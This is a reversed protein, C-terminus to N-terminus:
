TDESEYASLLESYGEDDGEVAASERKKPEREASVKRQRGESSIKRSRGETSVKRTRAFVEGERGEGASVKRRRSRPSPPMAPPAGVTEDFTQARPTTAVTGTESEGEDLAPVDLSSGVAPQGPLPPVPGPNSRSNRMSQLRPPFRKRRLNARASPETASSDSAEGERQTRSLTATRRALLKGEHAPLAAYTPESENLVVSGRQRQSEPQKVRVETTTGDAEPTGPPPPSPNTGPSDPSGQAVHSNDEPASEYAPLSKSPKPPTPPSMSSRSGARRSPAMPSPSKNRNIPVIRSGGDSEWDSRTDRKRPTFESPSLSSVSSMSQRNGVNVSQSRVSEAWKSDMSPSIPSRAPSSTLLSTSNLLLPRPGSHSRPPIGDPPMFASSLSARHGFGSDSVPSPEGSRSIPSPIMISDRVPRFFAPKAPPTYTKDMVPLSGRKEDSARFSTQITTLSISRSHDTYGVSATSQSSSAPPADSTPATGRNSWADFAKVRWNTSVKALTAAADSNQFKEAYGFIMSTGRAAANAVAERPPVAPTSTSSPSPSPPVSPAPSATPTPQPSPVDMASRNTVGRWVTNALRSTFTSQAGSNPPSATTPEPREDESEEMESEDTEEPHSDLNSSWTKWMTDRLRAGLGAAAGNSRPAAIAAQRQQTLDYATQLVKEIGGISSLPYRQLYSMGEIFAEELEREGFADSPIAAIEDSWLNHTKRHSRGLQLLTGRACILMSTCVDLLYELKPLSERERMPQAFLADWIMLVAPLPLTHTLLPILWRFSYHPLGPDLGKISMDDWLEPDAWQLRESFRKVWVTGNQEDELESFEGVMAEFLWFTDAEIHPIENPDVEEVLAAYIPVLLSGIQPSRNAPNLCAHIYLLRLLASTHTNHASFSNYPRSPLLTTSLASRSSSPSDPVELSMQAKKREVPSAEELRVEPTADLRIEPTSDLRIEPMENSDDNTDEGADQSRLIKLRAELNGAAAIKVDASASEDLPCEACPEPEEELTVLLGPPVMSLENFVDLISQDTPSLPVTPAPLSSLPELLRRVLDYYNDRQTGAEKRWTSKDLPLTGLFLKWVRPRLWPPHSPLGHACLNRLNEVNVVSVIEPDVIPSIANVKQQPSLDPYWQVNNARAIQYLYQDLAAATPPPAAVARLVRSSVHSDENEVASRAFDPGLAFVLFERVHQLDKSEVHPAAYIISSAAEAVIPSPADRRELEHMHGLIVGVHMELTQMLDSKVDQRILKQAKARALAVSGQSLLIAIDRQTLRGQSDMRDQLQGLRQATYRLHSKVRGPEWQGAM